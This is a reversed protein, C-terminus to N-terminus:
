SWARLYQKLAYNGSAVRKRTARKLFLYIRELMDVLTGTENQERQERGNKQLTVALHPSASRRAKARKLHLRICFYAIACGEAPSHALVISPM